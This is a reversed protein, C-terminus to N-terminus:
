SDRKRAAEAEPKGLFAMDGATFSMTDGNLGGIRIKPGSLDQMITVATNHEHELDRLDKIIQTFQSAGGHSFNLRAVDLGAKILQEIVEPSNSAPGLTAVIKTRRVTM